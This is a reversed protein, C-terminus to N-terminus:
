RMGTINLMDISTKLKIVHLPHRAPTERSYHQRMKREGKRLFISDPM